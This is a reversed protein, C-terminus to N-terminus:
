RTIHNQTPLSSSDPCSDSRQWEGWTCSHPLHMRPRIVAVSWDSVHWAHYTERVRHLYVYRQKQLVSQLQHYMETKWSHIRLPNKMGPNGLSWRKWTWWSWISDLSRGLSLFCMTLNRIKVEPQKVKVFYLCLKEWNEWNKWHKRWSLILFLHGSANVCGFPEKLTKNVPHPMM